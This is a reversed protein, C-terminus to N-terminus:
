AVGPLAEVQAASDMEAFRLEAQEVQLGLESELRNLGELAKTNDTLRNHLATINRLIRKGAERRDHIQAAITVLELKLDSLEGKAKLYELPTFQPETWEKITIRRGIFDPGINNNM